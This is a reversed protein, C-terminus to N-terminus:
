KQTSKWAAKRAKWQELFEEKTISKKKEASYPKKLYPMPKTGEKAFAHLVPSAACIADYVYAGQLWANHNAQERIIEHAREYLRVLYPDGEWYEASPM